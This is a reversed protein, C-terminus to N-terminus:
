VSLEVVLLLLLRHLIQGLHGPPVPNEAPLPPLNKYNNETM